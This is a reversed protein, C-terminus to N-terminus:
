KGIYKRFERIKKEYGEDSPTYYQRGELESPLYQQKIYHRPYDHPYQYGEGRKMEKAGKFHADQLHAPVPQQQAREADRFAADVALVVANSKPSECLAIIAQAINLRAEPMGNFNLAQMAAVCQTLVSPNAMGVDESAHAIMRRVPVRPDVGAVMMRAFWFLAATSDSGRLSKCFASLMDYYESDDMRLARKQISDEAIELTVTIKGTKDPKTTLVALELANLACRVDGNAWSAIHELADQRIELDMQGYGRTKDQQARLLATQIDQQTLPLFEFLRCRSVIASTMAVMPNETTSGILKITGDEVAPLISDSQTKSWRHCEDLLLFTEKGYARAQKATEIVARVEKVGSTVANLSVFESGTTHAIIRALTSKGVGPPGYFICSGLRDAEIARRLLRGKGVIHEQGLFDDLTAPRMREALPASARENNLVNAM